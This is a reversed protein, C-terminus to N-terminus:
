YSYGVSVISWDPGQVLSFKCYLNDSYPIQLELFYAEFTEGYNHSVAQVCIIVYASEIEGSAILSFFGATMVDSDYSVRFNIKQVFFAVQEFLRLYKLRMM